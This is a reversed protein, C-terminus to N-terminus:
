RLRTSVGPEIAARHSAEGGASEVDSVANLAQVFGERLEADASGAFSDEVNSEAGTIEQGAKGAGAGHRADVDGLGGHGRSAEVLSEVAELGCLKMADGLVAGLAQRLISEIEHQGRVHELM